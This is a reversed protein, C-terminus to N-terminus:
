RRIKIQYWKVGYCGLNEHAGHSNGPHPFFFPANPLWQMGM